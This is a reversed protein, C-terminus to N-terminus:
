KEEALRKCIDGNAFGEMFNNLTTNANNILAEHFRKALIFENNDDSNEHSIYIGMIARSLKLQVYLLEAVFLQYEKHEMPETMLGTHGDVEAVEINFEKFVAKLAAIGQKNFKTIEM